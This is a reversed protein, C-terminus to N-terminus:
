KKIIEMYWTDDPFSKSVVSKTIKLGNENIMEEFTSPDSGKVNEMLFIKGDDNLHDGVNEFFNRHIKWDLDLFKRHEHYYLTEENEELDYNFHPPNGVILDFKENVNEFNNSVVFKINNGLRNDEITRNVVPELPPFVDVLTVEQAIQYEYLMFGFYGPGSCWEMAKPFKHNGYHHKLVSIFDSVTLLGYGDFQDATYLKIKGLYGEKIDFDSM